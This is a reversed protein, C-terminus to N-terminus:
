KTKYKLYIRNAESGSIDFEESTIRDVEPDHIEPVYDVGNNTIERYVSEMFNYIEVEKKDREKKEEQDKSIRSNEESVEIAPAELISFPEMINDDKDEVQFIKAVKFNRFEVVTNDNNIVLLDSNDKYIFEYDVKNSDLWDMVDSESSNRNILENYEDIFNININDKLIANSVPNLRDYIKEKVEGTLFEDYKIENSNPGFFSTFSDSEYPSRKSDADLLKLATDNALKVLKKKIKEDKIYDYKEQIKFLVRSPHDDLEYTSEMEDLFKQEEELKEEESKENDVRNSGDALLVTLSGSIIIFGIIFVLVGKGM